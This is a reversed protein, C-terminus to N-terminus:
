AELQLQGFSSTAAPVHPGICLVAEQLGRVQKRVAQMCPMREAECVSQLLRQSLPGAGVRCVEEVYEKAAQSSISSPLRLRASFLLAEHVTSEPVHIDTQEVYRCPLSM